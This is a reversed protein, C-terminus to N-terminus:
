SPGSPLSVVSLSVFSRLVALARFRGQAQSEQHREVSLRQDYCLALMKGVFSPQHRDPPVPPLPPVLFSRDAHTTHPRLAFRFVKSVTSDHALTTNYVHTDKIQVSRSLLATPIDTHSLITQALLNKPDSRLFSVLLTLKMRGKLGFM